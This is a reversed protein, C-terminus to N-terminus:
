ASGAEVAPVRRFKAAAQSAYQSSARGMHRMAAERKPAEAYVSALFLGNLMAVAAAADEMPLGALGERQLHEYMRAALSWARDHNEPSAHVLGDNTTM